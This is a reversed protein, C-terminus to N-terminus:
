RYASRVVRAKETAQQEALLAAAARAREQELQSMAAVRERELRATRAAFEQPACRRSNHVVYMSATVSRTVVLMPLQWRM